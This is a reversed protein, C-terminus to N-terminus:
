NGTIPVAMAVPLTPDVLVGVLPIAQPMGPIPGVQSLDGQRRRRKATLPRLAMWHQKSLMAIQVSLKYTTTPTLDM